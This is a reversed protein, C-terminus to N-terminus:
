PTYLCNLPGGPNGHGSQQHAYNSRKGLVNPDVGRSDHVFTFATVATAGLAATLFSYQVKFNVHSGLNTASILQQIPHFILLLPTSGYIYGLPDGNLELLSLCLQRALDLKEM